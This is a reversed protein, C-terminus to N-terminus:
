GAHAFRRRRGPTAGPAAGHCEPLGPDPAARRAAARAAPFRQLNGAV